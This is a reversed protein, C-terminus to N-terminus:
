CKGPLSTSPQHRISAPCFRRQCNFSHEIYGGTLASAPLYSITSFPATAHHYTSTTNVQLKNLSSPSPTSTTEQELRGACPCPPFLLFVSPTLLHIHKSTHSYAQRPQSSDFSLAFCYLLRATLAAGETRGLHVSHGRHVTTVAATPCDTLACNSEKNTQITKHM